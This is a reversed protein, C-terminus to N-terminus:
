ANIIIKQEALNAAKKIDAIVLTLAEYEGANFYGEAKAKEIRKLVNYFEGANEEDLQGADAAGSYSALVGLLDSFLSIDLPRGNEINSNYGYGNFDSEREIKYLEEPGTVYIYNHGEHLETESNAYNAAWERRSTDIALRAGTPDQFYLKM